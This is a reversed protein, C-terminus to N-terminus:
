DKDLDDDLIAAADAKLLENYRAQREEAEERKQEKLTRMYGKRYKGNFAM